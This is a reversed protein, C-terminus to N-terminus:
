TNVIVASGRMLAFWRHPRLESFEDVWGGSVSGWGAM